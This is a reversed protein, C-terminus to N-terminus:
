RLPRQSLEEAFQELLRAALVQPSAPPEGPRALPYAGSAVVPDRVLEVPPHSGDENPRQAYHAALAPLDETRFVEGVRVRQFLSHLGWHKEPPAGRALRVPWGMIARATLQAASRVPFHALVLREAPQARIRKKKKFRRQIAVHHNGQGITLRSRRALEGPVLVKGHVLGEDVRRHTVRRHLHPEDPKDDPHPVYTRWPVRHVEPEMGELVSRVHPDEDSTLFEDADLPVIWDAGREHAVERVAASVIASQNFSNGAHTKLVVPLGEAALERLIEPTADCSMHDVVVLEDVFEAHHRVFLEIVDAENRVAAIVSIKV